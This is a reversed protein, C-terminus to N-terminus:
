HRMTNTCRHATVLGGRGFGFREVRGCGDITEPPTTGTSPEHSVVRGPGISPFLRAAVEAVRVPYKESDRPLVLTVILPRWVPSTSNGPRVIRWGSHQRAELIRRGCAATNVLTRGSSPFHSRTCQGWLAKPSAGAPWEVVNRTRSGWGDLLRLGLPLSRNTVGWVHAPETAVPIRGAGSSWSCRNSPPGTTAIGMGARSRGKRM